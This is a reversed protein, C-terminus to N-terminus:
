KSFLVKAPDDRLGHFLKAYEAKQHGISLEEGAEIHNCIVFAIVQQIEKVVYVKPTPLM